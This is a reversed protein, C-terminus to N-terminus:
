AAEVERLRQWVSVLAGFRAAMDAVAADDSMTGNLWGKAAESFITRGVAFGKVRRSSRAARFGAELAEQPAELGLLVVGRCYPDRAEIVADIASWAGRSAQPELKWWDPKLGADYLEGLARAVTGDDMAGHKSAIIEILIERGVKRAAEYASRLKETQVHKLDDPDDPHYYCLVKICHEVPWDILRSGIDQSFEFTLPRSGPLEIPKGIWFDKLTGAAFLADRGYKDDILMGFGPRGAAIQTAARVALTKFAPLRALKGADGACLDELQSRHDIALAMLEPIDRRRNTAWHIHNLEADKRLARQKSGHKLFYTLEEWSPYEPACLLRSVAFAGCANAWTASIAHPEGALWGRLYGSMFADGAGLV